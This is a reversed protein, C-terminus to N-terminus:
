LSHQRHTKVVPAVTKNSLSLYAFQPVFSHCHKEDEEQSQCRTSSEQLGEPNAATISLTTLDSPRHPELTTPLKQRETSSESHLCCLETTLLNLGQIPVSKTLVLLRSVLGHETLGRRANLLM